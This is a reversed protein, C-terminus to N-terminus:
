MLRIPIMNLNSTLVPKAVGADLLVYSDDSAIMECCVLKTAAEEIIAPISPNGYTYTAKVAHKSHVPFEARFFIDSTDRM